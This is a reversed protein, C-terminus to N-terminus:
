NIQVNIRSAKYPFYPAWFPYLTFQATDIEPIGSLASNFSGASIGILARQIADASVQTIITGQGSVSITISAPTDSPDTPIDSVPEIQLGGFDPISVNPYIQDTIAKSAIAQEFLDRPLLYSVMTGELTAPFQINSGSLVTDSSNITLFQLSPFTILNDPIQGSTERSLKETLDAQLTALTQQQDGASLTNMAGNQGGTISGASSAFFVKANSGSWGSITFTTGDSNYAPGAAAAVISVSASGATKASGSGTYGPVSVTSQTIYSEGNAGTLTTGSRVTESSKSYQNFIVAKGAAKTTSTTMASGFVERSVSDTVVMTQFSLTGPVATTQNALDIQTNQLSFPIQRQTIVVDAHVFLVGVLYLLAIFILAGAIVMIKKWSSRPGTSNGNNARRPPIPKKYVPLPEPDAIGKDKYDKRIVDYLKM